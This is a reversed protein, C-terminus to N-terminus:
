YITDLTSVDARVQFDVAHGDKFRRKMKEIAVAAPKHDALAHVVLVMECVRM